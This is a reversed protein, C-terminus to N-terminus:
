DLTIGQQPLVLMRDLAARANAAVAPLAGPCDVGRESKPHSGRGLLLLAFPTAHPETFTV